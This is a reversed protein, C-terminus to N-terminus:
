GGCLQIYKGVAYLWWYLESFSAAPKACSSITRRKGLWLFGGFISRNGFDQRVRNLENAVLAEAEDWSVQVFPDHGRKDTAAGPGHELWSKRIMPMKIRTPADLVDVIGTGIPSPDSDADFPHLAAVKGDAVEVRYTGWHTSTLPLNDHPSSTILKEDM